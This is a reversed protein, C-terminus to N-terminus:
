VFCHSWHTFSLKTAGKFIRSKMVPVGSFVHNKENFIQVSFNQFYIWMQCSNALFLFFLFLPLIAVTSMKYHYINWFQIMPNLYHKKRILMCSRYIPNFRYKHWKRKKKYYNGSMRRTKSLNGTEQSMKSM